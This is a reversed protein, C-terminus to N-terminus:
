DTRNPEVDQNENAVSSNTVVDAGDTDPWPQMDANPELVKVEFISKDGYIFNLPNRSGTKSRIEWRDGVQMESNNVRFTLNHMPYRPGNTSSWLGGVQKASWSPLNPTRRLHIDVYQYIETYQNNNGQKMGVTASLQIDRGSDILEQTIIYGGDQLPPGYVALDWPIEKFGKWKVYGDTAERVAEDDWPSYDIGSFHTNKYGIGAVDRWSPASPTLEYRGSFVDDFGEEEIVSKISVGQVYLDQENIPTQSIIEPSVDPQTEFLENSLMDLTRRYVAMDYGEYVAPIKNTGYDKDSDEELTYSVIQKSSNRKIPRLDVAEQEVTTNSVKNTAAM